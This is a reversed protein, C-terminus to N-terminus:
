WEIKFVHCDHQEDKQQIHSIKCEKNFKKGLGRLLGVVMPTLGERDSRYELEISSSTENRTSFQPPVLNPMISTVRTHLMDLNNLFDPLNDGALDIMDSYGENATYLIWYEGFAEMVFSADAGLVKSACKVLDYTLKDPYTQLGIFFDDEFGAMKKIEIWKDEGFKECVLDQIAKNVLGYM